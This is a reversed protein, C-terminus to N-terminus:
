TNRKVQGRGCCTELLYAIGWRTSCTPTAQPLPAVYRELLHPVLVFFCVFLVFSGFVGLLAWLVQQGRLSM